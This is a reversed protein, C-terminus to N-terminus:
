KWDLGLADLERHISRLDWVHIGPTTGNTLTILRSGDPTLLPTATDLYPHPLQVIERGSAADVLRVTGSNTDHAILKSDQSFVPEVADGPQLRPGEKWPEVDVAWFRNGDLGTALWKGDRSFQCYAIGGGQRLTRILRGSRADWIKLMDTLHAGTAVWRGDSSVAIHAAGKAADVRVLQDPQDAHLMWAGAQKERRILHRVSMALVRGDRSQSIAHGGRPFALKQPPGLRLGDPRTFDAQVVWRYVGTDEELTLFTGSPEFVVQRVGGPRAEFRLEGGTDLNWFGVGDNMGVALLQPQRASVAASFFQVGEPYNNRTLTRYDRGAGVKWFGLRRGTLACALWHDDRSFRLVPMKNVGPATFLLQGSVLDWLQLSGNWGTSVLRDGAHNFAVGVGPTRTTLQRVLKLKTDYLFIHPSDGSGVALTQGDPSWAAHVAHNAHLVEFTVAQTRLDRLQVRQDRYTYVAVVPETPHLALGLQKRIESPRLCYLLRGTALECVCITGDGFAVALWRSDARFDVRVVPSTPEKLWKKSRSGALKWVQLRGDDGLVAVFKGDPSLYPLTRQGWGPLKVVQQDDAVQRISCNGQEDTRAYIELRDDVDVGASGLPFGKWQKTLYLDPLALAGVAENRLQHRLEESPHLQLAQGIEDLCKFRQGGAGSRRLATAQRLHSLIKVEQEAREAREQSALAKDREERLLATVISGVGLVVLLVVVLTCLSAVVPNRRCWRRIREALSTRRARIPRDALFRRLDEALDRATQYRQAPEPAIAKLVITELDRPVNRDSHRLPAPQERTVRQMLRHRNSDDFAPRLALLEYLTMGLGYIDGRRDSIGRFREPAMYSLTGIVDGPRTLDSSGEMKALGFDTIWVTGHADLLLNSPKIDRHLIGHQHAYALAEAVQVGVRAVSRYYDATAVGGLMTQHGTAEVV